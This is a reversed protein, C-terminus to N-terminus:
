VSLAPLPLLLMWRLSLKCPSHLPAQHKSPVAPLPLAASPPPRPRLMTWCPLHKLLLELQSLTRSFLAPLPSAGLLMLHLPMKQLLDLQAQNRSLLAQPLLAVSLAPLPLLLM